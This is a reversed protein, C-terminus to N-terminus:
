QVITMDYKGQALGESPKYVSRESERRSVAITLFSRRSNTESIVDSLKNPSASDKKTGIGLGNM